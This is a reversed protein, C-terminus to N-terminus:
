GEPKFPTYFRRVERGKFPLLYGTGRTADRAEKVIDPWWRVVELVQIWIGKETFGGGFFFSTLGTRRWVEKEKRATTITPDASIVILDTEAALASLWVEDAVDESFKERLHQISHHSENLLRMAATLNSSICNDFFFRM